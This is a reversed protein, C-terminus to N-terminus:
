VPPLSSQFFHVQLLMQTLLSLYKPLFHFVFCSEFKHFHVFPSLASLGIGQIYSFPRFSNSPM